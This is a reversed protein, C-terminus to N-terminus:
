TLSLKQFKRIDWEETVQNSTFVQGGLGLHTFQRYRSGLIITKMCPFYQLKRRSNLCNPECGELLYEFM